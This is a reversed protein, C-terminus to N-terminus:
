LRPIGRCGRGAGAAPVRMEPAPLQRRAGRDPLCQGRLASIRGIGHGTRRSTLLDRQGASSEHGPHGRGPGAIERAQRKDSPDAGKDYGHVLLVIRDGFAHCFMRLLLGTDRLRFEFLGGGLQRGFSTGCVGIGQKDRCSRM